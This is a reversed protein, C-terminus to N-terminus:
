IKIEGTKNYVLASINQIVKELTAFDKGKTMICIFYPSENKYIVGCDHLERSEVTGDSHLTTHEGFKHSVVVSAPLNKGLGNVFTSESLLQLARESMTNSLYTSNYLSRFIVSYQRVSMFDEVENPLNPLRFKTYAESFDKEYDKMLLDMARNDSDVIVTKLLENVSHYGVSLPQVPKYYQGPDGKADYYIMTDLIEPSSEAHKLIGVMLVVKLMSSPEFKEDEDVGTWHSNNLDNFYVSVATADGNGIASKSADEIIKKLSEFEPTIEESTRIFLLPNIYKYEPSDLRVQAILYPSTPVAVSKTLRGSFVGIVLLGLAAIGLLINRKKTQLM